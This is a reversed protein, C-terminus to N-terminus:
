AHMHRVAISDARGRRSSATKIKSTCCLVAGEWFQVLTAASHGRTAAGLRVRSTIGDSHKAKIDVAQLLLLLLLLCFAYRVNRRSVVCSYTDTNQTATM